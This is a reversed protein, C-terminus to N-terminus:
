FQKVVQLQYHQAREEIAGSYDVTGFGDAVLAPDRALLNFVTLSVRTGAFLSKVWRRSSHRAWGGREFDYSAQADWRITSARMVDTSSFLQYRGSYTALTGAEWAHRTWFLSGTMRLPIRWTGVATSLPSSATARAENKTTRAIDFRMQIDGWPTTRDYKAAADWGALRALGINISTMRINTVPGAWGSQDTPLNAGRTAYEPYLALIQSNSYIAALSLVRDTYDTQFWSGTLSLGKIYPVDITLSVTQGKSKQPRLDPNGVSTRTYPTPILTNGRLPDNVRTTTNTTTAPRHLQSLTPVLYGNNWTGRLMLWSWPQVILAGSPSTAAAFDSYRDTRAAASLEVRHLLPWHMKPGVLPVRAEAAVAEIRRYSSRLRAAATAATASKIFPYDGYEERMETTVALRADGAPLTWIPGDAKADYSWNTSIDRTSPVLDVGMLSALAGPPNTSTTGYIVLPPNAGALLPTSVTQSLSTSSVIQDVVARDVGVTAEYRWAHPLDGRVGALLHNSTRNVASIPSQDFYVKVVKIPIGFPNGPYGAPVILGTAPTLYPQDSGSYTTRSASADAFAVLWPRHRYELSAFGSRTHTVPTIQFKPWDLPEGLAGANTYDTVTLSGGTASAPIAATSSTLGPLNAGNPTTVYGPGFRYYPSRGDVGGWPRADNSTLYPIENLNPSQNREYSVSARGSWAGSAFGHTLTATFIPADHVMLNDYSFRVETGQFNKKTIINIVGAVADAGYIASAGDLLVEIREVAAVPLGGLDYSPSGIAQGTKTVRRGDILILTATSDFGRLQATVRHPDELFMPGSQPSTGNSSFSIQPIYRFLDGVTSAGTREIQRRDLTLMPRMAQEGVLSRIRSGTVEFTDLVLKGDEIKGQNERTTATQAVREANPSSDRKVALAGTKEDQVAVLGTDALMKDLAERPTFEGKVAATKIGRMQEVPYVIQEGSQETFAKLVKVADGAPLNYNKKPADAGLSLVTSALACFAALLLGRLNRRSPRISPISTTMPHTPDGECVFSGATETLFM